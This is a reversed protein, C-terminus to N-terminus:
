VVWLKTFNTTCLLYRQSRNVATRGDTRGDTWMLMRLPKSSLLASLPINAAMWSQLLGPKPPFGQNHQHITHHLLCLGPAWRASVCDTPNNESETNHGQGREREAWRRWRSVNWRDEGRVEDKKQKNTKKLENWCRMAWQTWGPCVKWLFPTIGPEQNSNVLRSEWVQSGPVSFSRLILISVLM